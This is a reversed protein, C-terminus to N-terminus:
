DLTKQNEAIWEYVQRSLRTTSKDSSTIPPGIKVTITGPTKLWTRNPWCHGANHVVPVVDVEAKKALMAGGLSFKGLNPWDQRTGEPFILVSNGLKLFRTGQEILQHMAARRDSRNIAIPDLFRFAWGFFPIDLLEEKIVASQPSFITQLYFTEWTSQHNSIVVCGQKPIHEKGEVKWRIGCIVRILILAVSCWAVAAYRHRHKRPVLYISALVISPYFLTWLTLLCYFTATRLCLLVRHFM